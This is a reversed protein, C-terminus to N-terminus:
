VRGITLPHSATARCATPGPKAPVEYTSIKWGELNSSKLNGLIVPNRGAKLRERAFPTELSRRSGVGVCLSRSKTHAAVEACFAGAGAQRPVPRARQSGRSADRRRLPDGPCVFGTPQSEARGKM